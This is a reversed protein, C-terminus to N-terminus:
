TSASLCMLRPSKRQSSSCALTKPWCRNSYTVFCRCGGKPLSPLTGITAVRANVLVPDQDKLSYTYLKEHRREFATKLQELLDPASFDVDDLTVDIEFIQEGYRMDAARSTHIDGDFWDRLRNQGEKEMQSYLENISTVDLTSTDGIHTRTVELRLQTALM